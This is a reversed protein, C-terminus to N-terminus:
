HADRAADRERQLPMTMCRAGGRARSLESGDFTYVVRAQGRARSLREAREKPDSQLSLRVQEFGHDECLAAITRSNRSYLLIHGPAICVANAGDTWQERRQFLPDTGGCPVLQVTGLEDRLVDLVTRGELLRPESDRRLVAVAVEEGREIMPAHGLFLGHDIQTLVTDLHMVSRQAPMLVVYVRELHPYRPFLAEHALREITQPTTRESCGILLFRESVVLVDGGEIARFARHRDWDATEFLFPTPTENAWTLAFRVLLSERARADTAMRGVAVRDFIPICPDRTFMLNPVPPLAMDDHATLQQRIRALTMPAKPLESWFLGHVLARGLEPREMDMLMPAIRRHTARDCVRDVLDAVAEEPARVLADRLLDTIEHVVAGERELIERMLDHELGALDAALIDDFLVRELEYQTMHVIEPGPRHVVVRQLRGVESFVRVREVDNM